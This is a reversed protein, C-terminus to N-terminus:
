GTPRTPSSPTPAASRIATSSWSSITHCTIDLGEGQADIFHDYSCLFNNSSSLGIFHPTQSVDTVPYDYSKFCFGAKNSSISMWTNNVEMEIAETENEWVGRIDSDVNFSWSKPKELPDTVEDIISSYTLQTCAGINKFLVVLESRENPLTSFYDGKELIKLNGDEKNRWAHVVEVSESDCDTVSTVNSRMKMWLTQGAPPLLFEVKGEDQAVSISFTNEVSEGSGSVKLDFPGVEGGQSTNTEPVIESETEVSCAPLLCMLLVSLLVKKM